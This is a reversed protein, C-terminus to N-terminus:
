HCLKMKPEYEALGVLVHFFKCGTVLFGPVHGLDLAWIRVKFSNKSHNIYTRKMKPEYEAFGALFGTFLQFGTIVFVSFTRFRM